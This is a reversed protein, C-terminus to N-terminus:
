ARAAPRGRRGALAGIAGRFDRANLHLLLIAADITDIWIPRLDPACLPKLAHLGELSRRMLRRHEAMVERAQERLRKEPVGAAALRRLERVRVALTPFSLLVPPAASAM